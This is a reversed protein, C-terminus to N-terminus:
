IGLVVPGFILLKNIQSRLLGEIEAFAVSVIEHSLVVILISSVHKQDLRSGDVDLKAGVEVWALLGLYGDIRL